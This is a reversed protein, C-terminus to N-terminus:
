SRGDSRMGQLFRTVAYSLGNSQDLLVSSLGGIHNATEATQHAVGELVTAAQSLNRAGGAVGAVNHAIDESVAIQAAVVGSVTQSITSMEGITAVIAEIAAVAKETSQQVATIQVTIQDTAKATQSALTKVEGAVVAFGKGAEGARAAEITANLALLNTQGAIETILNVIKGIALVSDSLNKVLTMTTAAQHQAQDAVAQSQRVQRSIDAISSTMHGTAGTVTQMSDDVQHVTSALSSVQGSTTQAITVMQAASASLNGAADVLGSTIGGVAAELSDAMALLGAHRAAEAHVQAEARAQQEQRERAQQQGADRERQERHRREARAARQFLQVAGLTGLTLLAALGYGLAAFYEVAKLDRSGFFSADPQGAWVLWGGQPDGLALPIVQSFVLSQDVEGRGLPGPSALSQGGNPGAVAVGYVPNVLAYDGSPMLDRLANLRIIATITGKLGGEPDYFPVSFLVGTRDPDRRTQNFETNDCTIVAPGSIVPFDLRSIKDLTPYHQRLWAMQQRLQRYEYIEVQEPLDAQEKEEHKDEGVILHDFMLIPVEEKGTKPDIAEPELSAPVIYVESVAVNVALNNYIQQISALANEDLNEGHRDIARVSPLQAITRINQYIERLAGDVRTAVARTQQASRELYVDRANALDASSKYYVVFATMVGVLCIGINVLLWLGRNSM